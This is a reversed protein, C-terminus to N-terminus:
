GGQHQFAVTVSRELLAAGTDVLERSNAIVVPASVQCRIAVTTSCSALVAGGPGSCQDFSCGFRDGM